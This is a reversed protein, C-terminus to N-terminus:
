DDLHGNSKTNAIAKTKKSNFLRQSFWATIGLSFSTTIVIAILIAWANSKIDGWYASVGLVAPVFLLSMHKLPVTVARAVCSELQPLCFLAGLLIFLGLLPGPIFLSTASVILLGLYYAAFVSAAGIFVDKVNQM